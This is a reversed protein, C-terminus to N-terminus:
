MIHVDTFHFEFLFTRTQGIVKIKNVVRASRGFCRSNTVSSEHRVNARVCHCRSLAVPRGYRADDGAGGRGEGEGM